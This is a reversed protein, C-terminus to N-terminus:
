LEIDTIKENFWGQHKAAIIGFMFKDKNKRVLKVNKGIRPMFVTPDLTSEDYSDDSDDCDVNMGTTNNGTDTNVIVSKDTCKDFWIFIVYVSFVSYVCVKNITRVTEAM